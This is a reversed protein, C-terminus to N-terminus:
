LIKFVSNKKRGDIKFGTAILEITTSAANHLGMLMGGPSIVKNTPSLSDKIKNFWESTLKSM